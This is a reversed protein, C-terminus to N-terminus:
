FLPLRWATWSGLIDPEGGERVIGYLYDGSDLVGEYMFGGRAFDLSRGKIQGSSPASDISLYRGDQLITVDTCGTDFTSGFFCWAGELNVTNYVSLTRCVPAYADGGPRPIACVMLETAPEVWADTLSFLDYQAALRRVQGAPKASWALSTIEPEEMVWVYDASVEYSGNDDQRYATAVVTDCFKGDAANLPVAIESPAYDCTTILLGTPIDQQNPPDVNPISSAVSAVLTPQRTKNSGADNRAREKGIVQPNGFVPPIGLGVGVFPPEASRQPEETGQICGFTLSACAVLVIKKWTKM